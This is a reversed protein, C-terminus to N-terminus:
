RLCPDCAPVPSLVVDASVVPKLGGNLVSRRCPVCQGLTPLAGEDGTVNVCSQSSTVPRPRVEAVDHGPAVAGPCKRLASSDQTSTAGARLPPARQAAPGSAPAHLPPGLPGDWCTSEPRGWVWGALLVLTSRLGNECAARAVWVGSCTKVFRWALYIRDM